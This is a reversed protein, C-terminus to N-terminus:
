SKVNWKMVFDAPTASSTTLQLYYRGAALVKKKLLRKFKKAKSM